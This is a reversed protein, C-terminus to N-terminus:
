NEELKKFYRLRKTQIVSDRKEKREKLVRNFGEKLFDKQHFCEPWLKNNFFHCNEKQM